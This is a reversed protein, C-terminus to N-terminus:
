SVALHRFLAVKAFDLIFALGVAAVAVVGVIAASMPAMLTGSVALVVILALDAGSALVMWRSPRSSWLHHRERAVYFVAQGSFVLTFVALTQLTYPDLRLVFRGIVLSGLCFALDCLGLIVSAITLNGIRWVNPSPSPRVHDTSSSMALFDGIIMMLVMLVPTIVAHGSILLGGLLFLVQVVKQTVSRLTYTLIRQFTSRGEEIAAVIGGLGPETLVIGAASKAVDTASFVAIGMHAQRLAPADNVGDGCMAVVHGRSQFMKVLAFKDEPLVGAFVGVQEIDTDRPLPTVACRQGGIGVAEAVVSATAVADGTVMVTRVGLEELREVLSRSDPRPPDSLAIVGAMQLAGEPGVGVALVRFGATELERASEAVEASEATLGAIVSYAGKAVTVLAGDRGRATATSMKRAPDFPEFTVLALNAADSTGAAAHRIAGDVPDAGAASSALAALALVRSADFGPAPRCEGVTLANLTLTGTKDACLVDIGAAEDLASLRTPLVGRRALARAGLTAALTFMSPLAVPISALVAVLALPAIQAFPLRLVLALGVLLVTVGGNFLALNRVVRFIAKQQTSEVHAIRILEAGRGFRTDAGTAVVEATAEGRRIMAGAYTEHGPGAEAPVSEGTLLSQDILVSGDVLRVDAAVVTGLSLMVLDGQVLEAAPLTTWSGDRLVSATPALRSKLTELTAQARSSQFFGLAANFLLLVAVVAAEAYEGLALQLVIAAELMWPVPAWLTSLALRIPQPAEDELTNPGHLARCRRAEDTTLGAPSGDRATSV